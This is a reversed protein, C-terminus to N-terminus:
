PFLRNYPCQNGPLVICRKKKCPSKTSNKRLIGRPINRTDPRPVVSGKHWDSPSHQRNQPISISFKVFDCPESRSPTERKPSSQGSSFPKSRINKVLLVFLTNKSFPVTRNPISFFRSRDSAGMWFTPILRCEWGSIKFRHFVIKCFTDVMRRTTLVYISVPSSKNASLMSSGELIVKYRLLFLVLCIQHFRPGVLTSFLLSPPPSQSSELPKNLVAFLMQVQAML